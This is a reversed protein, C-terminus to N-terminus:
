ERFFDIKPIFTFWFGYPIDIHGDDTGEEDSFDQIKMTYNKSKQNFEDALSQIKLEDEKHWYRGGRYGWHWKMELLNQWDHWGKRIGTYNDKVNFIQNFLEQDEPSINNFSTYQKENYGPNLDEMLKFLKSENIVIQKKNKGM